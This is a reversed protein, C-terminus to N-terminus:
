TSCSSSPWVMSDCEIEAPGRSGPRRGRARRGASVPRAVYRGTVSASAISAKASSQRVSPMMGAISDACASAPASCAPRLLQGPEVIRTFRDPRPSLSMSVATSHNPSPSVVGVVVGALRRRSRSARRLAGHLAPSRRLPRRRRRLGLAAGRQDAVQRGAERRRRTPDLRHARHDLGAAVDDLDAQGVAVRHHVARGDLGGGCCASRPRCGCRRRAACRRPPRRSRRARGEHHGVPVRDLAVADLPEGRSRAAAPPAPQDRGVQDGVLGASSARPRRRARGRCPRGPRATTWRRAAACSRRPAAAAEDVGGRHHADGAGALGDLSRAPGSTAACGRPSRGAPRRRGRADGVAVLGGLHGRKASPTM